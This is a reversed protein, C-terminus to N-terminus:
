TETPAHYAKHDRKSEASRLSFASRRLGWRTLSLLALAPYDFFAAARESKEDLRKRGFSAGQLLLQALAQHPTHLEVSGVIESAIL